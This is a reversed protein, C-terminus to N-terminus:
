EGNLCDAATRPELRMITRQKKTMTPMFWGLPRYEYTLQIGISDIVLGCADPTTWTGTATTGLAGGVWTYKICNTGCTGGAPTGTSTARYVWLEKPSVQGGRERLAEEISARVNTLVDAQNAGTAAFTSAAVRVSNRTAASTVSASRYIYGVDAIGMALTVMTTFVISM